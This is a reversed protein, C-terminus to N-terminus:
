AGGNTRAEAAAVEPDQRAAQAAQALASARTTATARRKDAALTRQEAPTLGIRDYTVRSDPSLIGAGILKVAEDAAASRTPTAADAWRNTVTSFDDPVSGDRVLLALHAVERWARGFTKQRREARKILRAEAQRIADASSPNDTVFGLYTSPIAGEAALMQSLGRAQELYPAPSAANFQGVEIPATGDENAPISLMRGMVAEWGTVTSGDAKVFADEGVNLAYRQPASYFERNVEMGLMTRVGQDTLSRVARTIESRGEVRSSRPRNPLVAVPVRGLNHEDRDAANWGYPGAALKITQNPLYLSAEITTGNEVKDISFASSLRRLRGDWEGTVRRASEVTILPQPEGAFGAGVVIFGTGYILADLHGMAADVDLFNDRYVEGLGFPDDDLDSAWGQFDLREELVDVVTGPWGVVTEIKALSPPISIGLQKIRAKGDYYASKVRNRGEFRALRGEHYEILDREERSLGLTPLSIAIAM